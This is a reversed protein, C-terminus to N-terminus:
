NELDELPEAKKEYEELQEQLVDCLQKALIHNLRIDAVEQTEVGTLKGTEKDIVPTEIEFCLQTELVGIAIRFGNAYLVKREDM